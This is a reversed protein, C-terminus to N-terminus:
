PRTGASDQRGDPFTTGCAARGWCPQDSEALRSRGGVAGAQCVSSGKQEAEAPLRHTDHEIQLLRPLQAPGQAADPLVRPSDSGASADSGSSSLTIAARAGGHRACIQDHGTSAAPLPRPFAYVANREKPGTQANNPTVIRASSRTGSSSHASTTTAAQAGRGGYLPRCRVMGSAVAHDGDHEHGAGCCGPPQPWGTLEAPAQRRGTSVPQGLPGRDLRGAGPPPLRCEAWRVAAPGCGKAM